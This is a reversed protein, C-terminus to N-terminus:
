SLFPVTGGSANAVSKGGPGCNGQGMAGAGGIATAQAGNGFAVVVPQVNEAGAATLVGAMAATEARASDGELDEMDEAGSSDADMDGEEGEGEAMADGSGEEEELDVSRDDEGESCM